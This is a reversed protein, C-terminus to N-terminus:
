VNKRNHLQVCHYKQTELLVRQHHLAVRALCFPTRTLKKHERTHTCIGVRSNIPTRKTCMSLSYLHFLCLLSFASFIGSFHSCPPLSNPYLFLFVLHNISLIQFVGEYIHFLPHWVRLTVWIKFNLNYNILQYFDCICMRPTPSM